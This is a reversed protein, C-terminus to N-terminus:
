KEQIGTIAGFTNVELTWESGPFFRSFEDPNAPQYTYTEGESQFVVTYSENRDGQRQLASLNLPPWNPNTDGGRLSAIDIMVWELQTYDCWDDYIRYECDQVVKAVGSGQDVTYPTGCVEEAGPAAELQTRRYKQTCTGLDASAPIQDRWGEREITQEGLIEVSREWQVSQVVALRAESRATLSMFLMSGLCLVVMFIGALIYLTKNPKAAPQLAPAVAPKAEKVLSAGCHQCRPANPPNPTGCAPCNIDSATQASYAGLVQGKQREQAGTLDGGCQSCAQTGAPNRAGCYSCHVDAGKEAQSLKAEDTIFEQQAPLEFQDKEEMAAGCNSCTKQTGPNKTECRKCTWELEVYGLTKEAM